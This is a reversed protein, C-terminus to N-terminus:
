SQAMRKIYEVDEASLAFWEGNIRKDAFLGHLNRELANMDDTQILCVYEVEFPLKTKFTKIRNDPNVTKGIKYASTPSQILYVYGPHLQKTQTVVGRSLERRINGVFVNSVGCRRAIERDAWNKWYDDTLYQQVLMRKAANSRKPVHTNTSAFYDDRQDPDILYPHRKQESM